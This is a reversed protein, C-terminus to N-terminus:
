ARLYAMVMLLVFVLSAALQRLGITTPKAGVAPRNMGDVADVLLLLYALPVLPPVLRLGALGLALLANFAHYVLARRGARWRNSSPPVAPWRRQELRLYVLVISAASQLWCLLWLLWATRDQAGGAVWYAAPATLALVGAGVLEMGMQGREERRSVLWLHWAFVVLGPLALVLLLAGFGAGALGALGLLVILGYITTWLLAPPRDSPPRRGSAVKVLLMIPQRCLFAAFATLFLTLLAPDLSGAAATGIVFPGIWWIWSGHESPLTYHKRFLRAKPPLITM